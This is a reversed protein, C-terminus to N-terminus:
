RVPRSPQRQLTSLSRQANAHDPQLRLAERFEQEALDPRGRDMHVLGLNSHADANNPNARLAANFEVVAADYNKAALFVAGLINRTDADGPRSQLAIRLEREAGALQGRAYYATGLHSHYIAVEPALRVSETFRSLARDFDNRKAFELGALDNMLPSTPSDRLTALAITLQDRWDANRRVTRVSLVLLIPAAIAPALWRPTHARVAKSVGWAVVVCFGVSPLYLLREAKGIGIPFLLNSVPLLTIAFFGAGLVLGHERRFYIVAVTITVLVVLAVLVGTEFLSHAIPVETTWYDVLLTRPFVLLALYEAIVRIATLIRAGAAVGAFGLWISAAGTVAQHRVALYFGAALALLGYRILMARVAAARNTRFGDRRLWDDLLLVLPLTAASEKAFVALLYFAAGAAARPARPFETTGDDARRLRLTLFALMFFLTSLLDARGVIEAVAETHVPHVAFVAAAIVAATLSPVLASALRLVMLANAAHVAVNIAHYGAPAPGWLRYEIAFTSVTLPRYLGIDTQASAGLAGGWYNTSFIKAVNGERVLLNKGVIDIDDLAFDNGLTNLYPLIALLLVILAAGWHIGGRKAPSPKSSSGERDKRNATSDKRRHPQKM